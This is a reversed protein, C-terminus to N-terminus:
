KSTHETEARQKARAADLAPALEQRLKAFALVLETDHPDGKFLPDMRALTALARRHSARLPTTRPPVTEPQKGTSKDTTTDADM